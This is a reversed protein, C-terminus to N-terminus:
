PETVDAYVTLQVMPNNLDNSLVTVTQEQFGLRKTVDLTVHIEGYEGAGVARNAILSATCSCTGYVRHIRLSDHGENVFRFVHDVKSGEKLKGFDHSLSEFRIRAFKTDDSPRLSLILIGTTILVIFLAALVPAHKRALKM